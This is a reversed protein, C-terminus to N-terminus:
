VEVVTLTVTEAADAVWTLGVTGDSRLFRASELIPLVVPEAASGVTVTIDLDAQGPEVASSTGAAVTLTGSDDAAGGVIIALNASESATVSVTDADDVSLWGAEDATTTGVATSQGADSPTAATVVLAAM